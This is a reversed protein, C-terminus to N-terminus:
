KIKKVPAYHLSGCPCVTLSGCLCLIYKFLVLMFHSTKTNSNFPKKQPPPHQKTSKLQKYIPFFAPFSEDVCFQIHTLLNQIARQDQSDFVFYSSSNSQPKGM